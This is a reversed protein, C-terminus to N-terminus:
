YYRSPMGKVLKLVLERLPPNEMAAIVREKDNIQKSVEAGKDHTGERVLM